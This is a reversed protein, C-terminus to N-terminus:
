MYLNHVAAVLGTHLSKFRAALWYGSKVNNKEIRLLLKEIKRVELYQVGM